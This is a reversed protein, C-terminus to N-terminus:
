SAERIVGLGLLFARLEEVTKSECQQPLDRLYNRREVFPTTDTEDVLANQLDIDNRAFEKERWTRIQDQAYTKMKDLSIYIEGTTGGFYSDDVDWVEQPFDNPLESADVIRYGSDDPVIRSAVADVSLGQAVSGVSIGGDIKFIFCDM